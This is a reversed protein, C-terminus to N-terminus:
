TDIFRLFIHNVLNDSGECERLELASSEVSAVNLPPMTELARM